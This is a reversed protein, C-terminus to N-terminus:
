YGRLTKVMVDNDFIRNISNILLKKCDLNNKQTANTSCATTCISVMGIELTMELFVLVPLVFKNQYKNEHKKKQM